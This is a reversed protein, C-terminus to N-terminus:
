EEDKPTAARNEYIKEIIKYTIGTLLSLILVKGILNLGYNYKLYDLLVAYFFVCIGLIVHKM